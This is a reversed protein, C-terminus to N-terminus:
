FLSAGNSMCINMYTPEESPLGKTLRRLEVCVYHLSWQGWLRMDLIVFGDLYQLRDGNRLQLVNVCYRKNREGLLALLAALM